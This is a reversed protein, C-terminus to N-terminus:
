HSTVRSTVTYIQGVNKICLNISILLTTERAQTQSENSYLHMRSPPSLSSEFGPSTAPAKIKNKKQKGKKNDDGGVFLGPEDVLSGLEMILIAEAAPDSLVGDELGLGPLPEPSSEERVLRIM